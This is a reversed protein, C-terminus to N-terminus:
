ILISTIPQMRRARIKRLAFGPPPLPRLDAVSRKSGHAAGPNFFDRFSQGVLGAEPNELGDGCGAVHVAGLNDRHATNSGGRDRVM